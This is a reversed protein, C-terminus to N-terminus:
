SETCAPQMWPRLGAAVLLSRWFRQRQAQGAQLAAQLRQVHGEVTLEAALASAAAARNGVSDVFGGPTSQVAATAAAALEDTGASDSSSRRRSGSCGSPAQGALWSPHLEPHTGCLVARGGQSGVHCLLAAAAHNHEPYTALLEVGELLRRQEEQRQQQQQLGEHPRQGTQQCGNPQQQPQQVGHQQQGPQQQQRRQTGLLLPALPSGDLLRFGPGGNVYDVCEKWEEEESGGRSSASGGSSAGASGSSGKGSGTDQKGGAAAADLQRFRLPAAVAGAESEYDFGSYISGAATGPFFALERDEVVELRSGPEFEVRACAYYAGACLGLYSGGSEVYERILQNGRGNLHKCYPLDAGGPMVLLLCGPQWGGALLQAADLTDVKFSPLLAERLSHLTSLVSRTGAGPGSYVYAAPPLTIAAAAAAATRRTAMHSAAAPSRANVGLLERTSSRAPPSRPLGVLM